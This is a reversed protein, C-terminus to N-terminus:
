WSSHIDVSKNVRANVVQVAFQAMNNILFDAVMDFIFLAMHAIIWCETKPAPPATIGVGPNSVWLCM